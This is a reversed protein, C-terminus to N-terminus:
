TSNTEEGWLRLQAIFNPTGWIQEKQDSSPSVLTVKMFPLEWFSGMKTRKKWIKNRIPVM